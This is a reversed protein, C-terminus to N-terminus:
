VANNRSILTFRKINFLDDGTDDVIAGKIFKLRAKGIRQNAAKGM